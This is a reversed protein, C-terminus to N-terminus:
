APDDTGGSPKRESIWYTQKHLSRTLAQLQQEAQGRQGYSGVLYCTGHDDQRWLEFRDPNRDTDAM